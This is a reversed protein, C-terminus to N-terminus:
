NTNQLFIYKLSILFDETLFFKNQNSIKGPSVHAFFNLVNFLATPNFNWNEELGKMIDELKTRGLALSDRNGLIQINM